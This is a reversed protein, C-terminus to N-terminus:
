LITSSKNFNTLLITVNCACCTKIAHLTGYVIQLLDTFLTCLWVTLDANPAHCGPM